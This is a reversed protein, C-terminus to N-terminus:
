PVRSMIVASIDSNNPAQTILGLSSTRIVVFLLVWQSPYTCLGVSCTASADEQEKGVALTVFPSSYAVCAGVM